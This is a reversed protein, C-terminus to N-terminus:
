TLAINIIDLACQGGGTFELEAFIQSAQICVNGAQLHLKPNSHVICGGM